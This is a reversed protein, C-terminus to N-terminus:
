EKRQLINGIKVVEKCLLKEFRKKEVPCILYERAGIEYADIANGRDDSLFIVQIDPDMAKVMKGVEFGPIGSKSVRIFVMKPREKEVRDLFVDLSKMAAVEEINTSEALWTLINDLGAGEADLIYAKVQVGGLNNLKVPKSFRM